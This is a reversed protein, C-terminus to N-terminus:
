ILIIFIIEFLIAVTLFLISHDQNNYDSVIGLLLFIMMFIASMISAVYIKNM